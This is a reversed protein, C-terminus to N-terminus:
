ESLRNALILLYDEDVPDATLIHRKIESYINMHEEAKETIKLGPIIGTINKFSLMLNCLALTKEKQEQTM